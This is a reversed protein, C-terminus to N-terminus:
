SSKAQPKAVRISLPNEAQSARTKTRVHDSPLKRRFKDWPDAPQYKKLAEEGFTCERYSLYQKQLDSFTSRYDTYKIEKHVAMHFKSLILELTSLLKSKSASTQAVQHLMKILSSLNLLNLEM